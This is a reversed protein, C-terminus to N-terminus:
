IKLVGKDYLYFGNGTTSYTLIILKKLTDVHDKKERIKDALEKILNSLRELHETTIAVTTDRADRIAHLRATFGKHTENLIFHAFVLESNYEINYVRQVIGFTASFYFLKQVPDDVEGMKKVVYEFEDLILKRMEVSIDM